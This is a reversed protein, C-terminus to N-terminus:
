LITRLASFNVNVNCERRSQNVESLLLRKEAVGLLSILHGCFGLARVGTTM